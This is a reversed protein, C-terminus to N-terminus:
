GGQPLYKADPDEEPNAPAAEAGDPAGTVPQADAADPAVQMLIRAIAEEKNKADAIDVNHAAAHADLEARSMKALQKEQERVAASLAAAAQATKKAREARITAPFFTKGVIKGM